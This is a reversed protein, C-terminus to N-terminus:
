RLYKLLYRRELSKFLYEQVKKNLEEEMKRMKELSEKPVKDEILKEYSRIKEEAMLYRDISKCSFKSLVKIFLEAEHPEMESLMKALTRIREERIDEPLSHLCMSVKMYEKPVEEDPM